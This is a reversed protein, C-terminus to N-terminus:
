EATLKHSVPETGRWRLWVRLARLTGPEASWPDLALARSGRGAAPLLRIVVLGPWVLGQPALQGAQRRGGREGWNASGDAALELWQVSESLAFLAGAVTRWASLVTALSVILLPIGELSAWAAIIVLVHLGTLLAALGAAPRLDLRLLGPMASPISAALPLHAAESATWPVPADSQSGHVPLGSM